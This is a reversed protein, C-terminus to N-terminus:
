SQEAMKGIVFNVIAYALLSVVIGVIAYLVTNKANKVDEPNGASITYRIGGYILMLVSVAGVIYLATNIITRFMGELESKDGANDGGASTVGTQMQQNPDVAGAFQADLGLTSFGLALMPVMLIGAVINKLKINMKIGKM